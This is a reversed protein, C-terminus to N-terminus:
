GVSAVPTASAYWQRAVPKQTQIGSSNWQRWNEGADLPGTHARVIPRQGPCNDVEDGLGDGDTDNDCVDGLGDDDVDTQDTNGAAPCNDCLDPIGDTDGDPKLVYVAVAGYYGGEHWYNDMGVVFWDDNM